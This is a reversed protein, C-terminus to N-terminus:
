HGVDAPAPATGASAPAAGAGMVAEPHKAAAQLRFLIAQVMDDNLSRQLEEVEATSGVTDGANYSYERSMDIHQGPILLNGSGDKVNFEVHYRVAYETVRASGNISLSDTSFAAQTVDLEAIGPGSEDEVTVGSSVLTRALSRQLQGGGNVTLHVRQMSSPLAASRRLHFGCAALLLSCSLVLSVRLSRSMAKM